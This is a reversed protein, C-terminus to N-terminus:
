GDPFGSPVLGAIALRADDRAGLHGRPSQLVPAKGGCWFIKAFGDRLSLVGNEQRIQALCRGRPIAVLDRHDPRLL